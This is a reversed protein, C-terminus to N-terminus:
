WRRGLGLEAQLHRELQPTCAIRAGSAQDGGSGQTHGPWNETRSTASRKQHADTSTNTNMTYQARRDLQQLSRSTIPRFRVGSASQEGLTTSATRLQRLKPM